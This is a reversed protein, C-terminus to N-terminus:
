PESLEDQESELFSVSVLTTDDVRLNKTEREQIVLSELENVDRIQALQQWRPDGEQGHRLAWEGLADTMCLVIPKTKGHLSWNKQHKAPFDELSVFANSLPNTCVLEPRQQFDEAQAYPFSELLQEGDLFVALSDGVSTLKITDADTSLDIALLTAFSGRAFAAQKSWSLSAPDFCAAYEAVMDDLWGRSLETQKIFSSTLIRAWTKSDFSESAGDSIVIRSKDNAIELMDEMDNPFAPEKPVRGSFLVKM